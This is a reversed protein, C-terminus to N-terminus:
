RLNLRPAREPTPDVWDARATRPFEKKWDSPRRSGTSRRGARRSPKRAHPSVAAIAVSPEGIAPASATNCASGSAPFERVLGAASGRWRSEAMPRLRTSSRRPRSPGPERKAGRRRVSVASRRVGPGEALLHPSQRAPYSTLFASMGGAVPPLFAV